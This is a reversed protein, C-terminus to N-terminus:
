GGGLIQTIGHAVLERTDTRTRSPARNLEPFESSWFKPSSSGWPRQRQPAAMVALVSLSLKCAAQQWVSDRCRFKQSTCRVGVGERVEHWARARMCSLLISKQRMCSKAAEVSGWIELQVRHRGVFGLLRLVADAVDQHIRLQIAFRGVDAGDCDQKMTM